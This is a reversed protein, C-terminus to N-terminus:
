TVYLINQFKNPMRKDTFRAHLAKNSLKECENELWKNRIQYQNIMRLSKKYIYDVWRCKINQILIQLHNYNEFNYQLILKVKM